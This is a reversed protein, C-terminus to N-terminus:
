GYMQTHRCRVMPDGYGTLGGTLTGHNPSPTSRVPRGHRTTARPVIFLASTSNSSPNWTTVLRAPSLLDSRTV